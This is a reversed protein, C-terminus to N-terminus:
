SFIWKAKMTEPCLLQPVATIGGTSTVSLRSFPYYRESAVTANLIRQRPPANMFEGTM